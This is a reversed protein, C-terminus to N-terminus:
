YKVLMFNEFDTTNLQYFIFDIPYRRKINMIQDKLNGNEYILHHMLTYDKEKLERHRFIRNGDLAIELPEKEKGKNILLGNKTIRSYKKICRVVEQPSLIYSELENGKISFPGSCSLAYDYEKGLRFEEISSLHTLIKSDKQNLKFLMYVSKDVGECNIGNNNLPITITGTGCGLELVRSGKPIIKLLGDIYKKQDHYGRSVVEDYLEAIKENYYAQKMVQSYDLRFM